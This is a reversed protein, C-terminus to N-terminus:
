KTQKRENIIKSCITSLECYHFAMHRALGKSLNLKSLNTYAITLRTMNGREAHVLMYRIARDLGKLIEHSEILEEVPITVNDKDKVENETNMPILIIILLIVIIAYRGITKM